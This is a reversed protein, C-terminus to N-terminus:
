LVIEFEAYITVNKAPMPFSTETIIIEEDSEEEIYFLKTLKYGEDAIVNVSIVEGEIATEVVTVTGGVLEEDINITYLKQFEVFITINENPMEFTNNVIPRRIYGETIYYIDKLIYGDNAVVTVTVIEDNIAKEVVTIMGGIIEDDIEITYLKEFNAFLKINKEPMIFTGNTIIHEDESEAEKYYIKTLRYGDDTTVDITIIEQKISKDPSTISGGIIEEDIEILYLREFNAYILIKSAPMVFIGDTITYEEESGVEKYYIKTLIFDEDPLIGITVKEGEKAGSVGVIVNGNVMEEDVTISYTIEYEVYITVKDAPMVFSNDVIPHESESASAKYYLKTIVAGEDLTVSVNVAQGEVANEVVEITGGKVQNVNITYEKEFVVYIIVNSEPMVFTNDSIVHEEELGVEKYYTKTLRYNKSPSIVLSVSEGKIARESVEVTGRGVQNIDIRYYKDFIAYITINNAPMVFEKDIIEHFEVDGEEIYYLKSFKYNENEEISVSIKEGQKSKNVDIDITGGVIDDNISITYLREFVVHIVIDYSPVVLKNEFYVKQSFNERVYYAEKFLYNEETNFTVALEEGEIASDAVVVNGGIINDSIKISHIKKFDAYITINNEPMTFTDVFNNEVDTGEVIYYLRTLKFGLYPTAVVTITDDKKATNVSSINGNVTKGVSVSYEEVDLVKFTVGITVDSAPMVFENVFINKDTTGQLLYYMEEIAYGLYPTAFVKVASGEIASEVVEITGNIITENQISYLTEFEVVITINKAPMEFSDVFYKKEISGEVKYYLEKVGLGENPAIEVSVIEEEIAQEVVIVEGKTEDAVVEITYTKEFVAYIVINGAPMEFCNNSIMQHVDSDERIYYLDILTYGLSPTAEVTVKEGEKAGTTSVIIDGNVMEDDIDISYTIKYEVYISIEKAPMVFSNDAIAHEEESGTEKYYLKTIVAGEDLTVSVNVTQGEVANEVVEVTGGKVQNVNITYVKEFVAYITIDNAPMKFIQNEIIIETESGNEKYYLKKLVYGENPTAVVEVKSEEKAVTVVEVSGNSIESVSINYNEKIYLSYNFDYTIQLDNADEYADESYILEIFKGESVIFEYTYVVDDEVEITEEGTTYTFTNNLSDFTYNSEGLAKIISVFTMIVDWNEQEMEEPKIPVEEFYENNIGFTIEDVVIGFDENMLIDLAEKVYDFYYETIDAENGERTVFYSLKEIKGKESVYFEYVYTVGDETYEFTYTDDEGVFSCNAVNSNLSKLITVLNWMTSNITGQETLELYNEANIAISKNLIYNGEGLKNVLKLANYKSYDFTIHFTIRKNVSSENEYSYDVSSIEKTKPNLEVTLYPVSDGKNEYFLYKGEDIEFDAYTDELNKLSLIAQWIEETIEDANLDDSNKVDHKANIEKGLAKLTTEVTYGGLNVIRNVGEKIDNFKAKIGLFLYMHESIKGDFAECDNFDGVSCKLVDYDYQRLLSELASDKGIASSLTDGRGPVVKLIKDFSTQYQELDSNLDGDDSYLRLLWVAEKSSDSKISDTHVGYIMKKGSEALVSQIIRGSSVYLTVYLDEGKKVEYVFCNYENGNSSVIERKQTEGEYVRSVSYDGDKVDIEGIELYQYLEKIDKITVDASNLDFGVLTSANDDTYYQYKGDALVRVIKKTETEGEKVLMKLQDHSNENTVKGIEGSISATTHGDDTSVFVSTSANFKDIAGEVVNDVNLNVKGILNLDGTISDNFKYEVGMSTEWFIKGEVDPHYILDQENIKSGSTFMQINDKTEDKDFYVNTIEKANEPDTVDMLKFTVKNDAGITINTGDIRVPANSKCLFDVNYKGASEAKVSVTVSYYGGPAIESSLEPINQVKAEPDSKEFKFVPNESCGYNPYFKLVATSGIEYNGTGEAYGFEESNVSAELYVTEANDNCGAVLGFCMISLIFFLISKRKM